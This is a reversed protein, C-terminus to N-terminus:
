PIRLVEFSKVVNEVQEKVTNIFGKINYEANPMANKDSHYFFGIWKNKVFLGGQSPINNTFVVTYYGVDSLVSWGEGCKIEFAFDPEIEQIAESEHEELELTIRYVTSEKYKTYNNIM